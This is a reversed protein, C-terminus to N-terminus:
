SAGPLDWDTIVIRLTACPGSIYVRRPVTLQRARTLANVEIRWGDQRFERAANEPSPTETHPNLPDPLGRLWFPLSNLPAAACLLKLENAAATGSACMPVWAGNSWLLIDPGEIRVRRAGVGWPGSLELQAAAGDQRWLFSAQVGRGEANLAVRGRSEWADLAALAAIDLPPGRSAERAPTCAAIVICAMALLRLRGCARRV